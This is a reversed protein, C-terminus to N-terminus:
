GRRPGGPNMGPNMGAGMGGASMGGAGPGPNGGLFAVMQSLSHIVQSIGAHAKLTKDELAKGEQTLRDLEQTTETMAEARMKQLEAIQKDIESVIENGKAQMTSMQAALGQQRTNKEQILKQLHQQLVGIRQQADQMVSQETWTLDAADMAQIMLKQQEPPFMALGALMKLMRQASSPGEEIGAAAMVDTATQETLPIPSSGAASAQAPAGAPGASAGARSAQASAGVGAASVQTPRNTPPVAAGRVGGTVVNSPISSRSASSPTASLQALLDAADNSLADTGSSGLSERGASSPSSAGSASPEDDEIVVFARAVKKFLSM